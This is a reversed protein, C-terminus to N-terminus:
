PTSLAARVFALFHPPVPGGTWPEVVWTRPDGADQPVTVVWAAGPLDSDAPVFAVLVKHDGGRHHAAGPDRSGAVALPWAALQPAQRLAEAIAAMCLSQELDGCGRVQPPTTPADTEPAACSLVATLVATAVLLRM